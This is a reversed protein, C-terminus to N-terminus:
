SLPSCCIPLGHYRARSEQLLSHGPGSENGLRVLAEVVVRQAGLEQREQLAVLAANLRSWQRGERFPLLEAAEHLLAFRRQDEAPRDGAVARLDRFGFVPGFALLLKAVRVERVLRM